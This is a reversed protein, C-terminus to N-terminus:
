LVMIGYIWAARILRYKGSTEERIIFPVEGGVAFICIMGDSELESLGLGLSGDRTM